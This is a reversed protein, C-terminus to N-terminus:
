FPKSLRLGNNQKWKQYKEKEEDWTNNKSRNVGAYASSANKATIRKDEEELKLYHNFRNEQKNWYGHQSSRDVGVSEMIESIKMYKLLSDCKWEKLDNTDLDELNKGTIGSIISLLNLKNITNEINKEEKFSTDAIYVDRGNHERCLRPFTELLPDYYKSNIDFCGAAEYFKKLAEAKQMPRSFGLKEIYNKDPYKFFRTDSLKQKCTPCQKQNKFERKKIDIAIQAAFAINRDYEWIGRPLTKRPNFKDKVERM